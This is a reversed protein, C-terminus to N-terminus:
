FVGQQYAKLPVVGELHPVERVVPLRRHISAQIGLASREDAEGSATHCRTDIEISGLASEKAHITTDGDVIGRALANLLELTMTAVDVAEAVVLTVQNRNAVVVLTNAHPFFIVVFQYSSQEIEAARPSERKQKRGRM